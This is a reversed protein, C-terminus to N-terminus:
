ANNGGQNDCAHDIANVIYKLYKDGRLLYSKNGEEDETIFVAKNEKLNEALLQATVAKSPSNELIFPEFIKYATELDIETEVFDKAKDSLGEESYISEFSRSNKILKAKEIAKSIYPNLKESLAIDYELTWKENYFVKVNDKNFKRRLRDKRTKRLKDILEDTLEQPQIAEIEKGVGNPLRELNLHSRIAEKIEEKSQYIDGYLKSVDGDKLSYIKNLEYVEKKMDSNKIYYEMARVDLDTVVAVPINLKKSDDRMFIYAYHLFATSGVNVISVGYKYLPKGILEAITPILINEADGEVLIVGRTFFLNAKTADLFRELFKYNQEELKTKGEWLPYVDKDHCLITNKLPISAGLTTSHTTLIVQTDSVDQFAKIVRLQAQPHLHAELEEILCLKLGNYQEEGLHLLEAAMFLKNLAGLGSPNEDLELSLSRLIRILEPKAIELDATRQDGTHLFNKLYKNIEKLIKKNNYFEDKIEENAKKIINEFEHPKYKGSEDKEKQFDKHSLLIQALRSRYGPTLEQKADRLPKLYTVKLFERANGDMPMDANEPGAKVDFTITNNPHRTAKLHVRLEYKNHENFHAWELFNAAENIDLGRFLCEIELTNTRDNRKSKFFDKEDFRILEYSKTNLIYRIADIIATKGSDNEGILVNLGKKFEVVIGPEKGDEGKAGYKRFNWLRIEKLYM